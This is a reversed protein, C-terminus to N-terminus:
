CRRDGWAACATLQDDLTRLEVVGGGDPYGQFGSPPEILTFSGRLADNGPEFVQGFVYSGPTDRSRLKFVHDGLDVPVLSTNAIVMAEPSSARAVIRIKGQLPDACGLRCPYLFSARLGGKPDFLYAGDGIGTHDYSVNEFASSQQCWFRRAPTETGCGIHVRVSGQAALVTGDAFRYGPTGNKKGQWWNLWSDRVWWGGLDVPAAGLNRVVIYEGNLNQEDSGDADWNAVVQLRADQQPGGCANPDWLNRRAARAHAAVLQYDGNHAWEDANSLFLGYGDELQRRALDTSKVWVSRRIRRGSRSSQKQAALQVRWRNAKIIREISNAAAVAMCDGRRKRATHSYRRMEMANVGILRVDVKKKKGKLKVRLTDGDAVLKVKAKWWLCPPAATDGPICPATRAAQATAPAFAVLALTALWCRTM